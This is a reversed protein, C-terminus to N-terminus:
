VTESRGSLILHVRKRSADENRIHHYYTEDALIADLESWDVGGREALGELAQEHNEHARKRDRETPRWTVAFRTHIIPMRFSETM